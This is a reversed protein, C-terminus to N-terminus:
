YRVHDYSGRRRRSSQSRLPMYVTTKFWQLFLVFSNMRRRIAWIFIREQLSEARVDHLMIRVQPHSLIKDINRLRILINKGSLGILENGICALLANKLRATLVQAVSETMLGHKTFVDKLREQVIWQMNMPNSQYAITISNENRRDYYYLCKGAYFFHSACAAVNLFFLQDESMRVDEDFRIHYERILDASIMKGCVLGARGSAIACMIEEKTRVPKDGEGPFLIRSDIKHKWIECNDALVMVGKQKNAYKMMHEVTECDIYDDADVFLLYRGRAKLLGNNRAASPGKNPQTFIRFRSDRLAYENMIPLSNDTSGDDIMVAEINTWTQAAVSDLCREIYPEANYVPIIVSM